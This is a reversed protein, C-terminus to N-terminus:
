CRQRLREKAVSQSDIHPHFTLKTSLALTSIKALFSEDQLCYLVWIVPLARPGCSFAYNMCFGGFGLIAFIVAFGIVKNPPEAAKRRREAEHQCRASQHRWNRDFQAKLRRPSVDEEEPAEDNMLVIQSRM